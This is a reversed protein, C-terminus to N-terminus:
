GKKPHDKAEVEVIQISIDYPPSLDARSRGGVLFTAVLSMMANGSVQLMKLPLVFGLIKPTDGTIGIHGEIKAFEKGDLNVVVRFADPVSDQEELLVRLYVAMPFAIPRPSGRPVQLRITDGFIGMLSLKGGLEHRIDDCVIFDLLKM